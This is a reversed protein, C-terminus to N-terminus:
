CFQPRPIFSTTTSECFSLRSTSRQLLPSPQVNTSYKVPISSHRQNKTSCFYPHRLADQATIRKEPCPELLRALLDYASTPFIHTSSLAIVPKGDSMDSSPVPIDGPLNPRSATKCLLPPLGAFKKEYRRIACCRTALWAAPSDSAEMPPPKPELLLRRGISRAGMQMREYGILHTFAHLVDLDDDVKIFPYRGSLFSIFIVGVAWIDVATTQEVHRMMVEPPRFGLTGGRRVAPARSLHRCGRCVTLRSGCVCGGQGLSQPLNSSIQQSSKVSAGRFSSVNDIKSSSCKYTFTSNASDFCDRKHMYCNGKNAVNVRHNNESINLDTRSFDSIRKRFENKKTDSVSRTEFKREWREDIDGFEESHALGFDVLFFQKTKQDMLFNTPKVDRHIIKYKHVHALASLLARMYRKIEREDATLYYDTFPIYDIFPMLIFVHDRIRMATHMQIVNHKGGLRRLIRIENEIRRVDVTPIIMKLAYFRSEDPDKKNKVALVSAFTGQGQRDSVDFLETLQPFECIYQVSRVKSEIM